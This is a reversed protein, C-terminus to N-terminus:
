DIFYRSIKPYDRSQHNKRRFAPPIKQGFFCGDAFPFYVSGGSAGQGLQREGFFGRLSYLFAGSRGFYFFFSFYSQNENKAKRSRFCRFNNKQNSAIFTFNFRRFFQGFSGLYSRKYFASKFLYIQKFCLIFWLYFRSFSGTV